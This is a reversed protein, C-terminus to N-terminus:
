RPPPVPKHSSELDKLKWGVVEGKITTLQDGVVTFTMFKTGNTLLMGYKPDNIWAGDWVFFNPAFQIPDGATGHFGFKTGVMGAASVAAGPATSPGSDKGYMANVLWGGGPRLNEYVCLYSDYDPKWEPPPLDRGERLRSLRAIAEIPSQAEDVGLEKARRLCASAEDYRGMFLLLLMGKKMLARGNNPESRVAQDVCLIAQPFRRASALSESEAALAEVTNGIPIYDRAAARDRAANDDRSCAFPLVVLALLLFRDPRKLMDAGGRTTITTLGVRKTKVNGEAGAADRRNMVRPDGVVQGLRHGATSCPPIRSAVLRSISQESMPYPHRHSRKPSSDIM